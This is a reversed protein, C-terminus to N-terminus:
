SAARVCIIPRYWNVAIRKGDPSPAGYEGIIWRPRTCRHDFVGDLRRWRKGPTTGTPLSSSYELLDMFARPALRLVPLTAIWNDHSSAAPM